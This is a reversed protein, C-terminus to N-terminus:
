IALANLNCPLLENLEHLKKLKYRYFCALEQEMFEAFEKSEKFEFFRL